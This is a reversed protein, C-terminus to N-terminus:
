LRDERLESVIDATDVDMAPEGPPLTFAAPSTPPRVWGQEILDDLEGSNVPVIRAVPRGRNTIEFTEGHAVQAIVGTTDQNLTRIPISEM